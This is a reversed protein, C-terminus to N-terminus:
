FETSNQVFLSFNVRNSLNMNLLLAIKGSIKYTIHSVMKFTEMDLLIFIAFILILYIELRFHQEKTMKCKEIQM